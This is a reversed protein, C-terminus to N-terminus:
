GGGEFDPPPSFSPSIKKTYHFAMALKVWLGWSGCLVNYTKKQIRLFGTIKMYIQM